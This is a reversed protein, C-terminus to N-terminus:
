LRQRSQLCREVPAPIARAKRFYLHLFFVLVLVFSLVRTIKAPPEWRFAIYRYFFMILAVVIWTVGIVTITLRFVPYTQWVMGASIRADELFSLASANLRQNLYRFHLFDIVFFMVLALTMVIYFGRWWPRSRENRFPDLPRFATATMVVLSIAAAIRADYRLGLWFTRPTPGTDAMPIRFVYWSFVRAASMFLVLLLFVALVWRITRPIKNM